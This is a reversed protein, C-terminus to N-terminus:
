TSVRGLVDKNFLTLEPGYGSPYLEIWDLSSAPFTKPQSAAKTGRIKSIFGGDAFPFFPETV